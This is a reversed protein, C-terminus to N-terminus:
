GKKSRGSRPRHKEQKRLAWPNIWVGVQPRSQSIDWEWIRKKEGDELKKRKGWSVGCNGTGVM